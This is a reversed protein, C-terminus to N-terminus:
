TTPTYNCLFPIAFVGLILLTHWNLFLAFAGWFRVFAWAGCTLNMLRRQIVYQVPLHGIWMGLLNVGIIAAKAASGADPLWAGLPWIFASIIWVAMALRQVKGLGRRWEWFREATEETKPDLRLLPQARFWAWLPTFVTLLAFRGLDILAFENTTM